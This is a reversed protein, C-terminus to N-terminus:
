RKVIGEVITRRMEQHIATLMGKPRPCTLMRENLYTTVSNPDSGKSVWGVIMQLGIKGSRRRRGGTSLMRPDDNPAVPWQVTRIRHGPAVTAQVLGRLVSGINLLEHRLCPNVNMDGAVVVLSDRGVRNNDVKKDCHICDYKRINIKDMGLCERVSVWCGRLWECEGM